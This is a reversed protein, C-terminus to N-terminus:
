YLIPCSNLMLEKNYDDVEKASNYLEVFNGYSIEGSNILLDDIESIQNRYSGPCGYRSLTIDRESYEKLAQSNNIYITSIIELKDLAKRVSKEYFEADEAFIAGLLMEEKVYPLEDGDIDLSSGDKKYFQVKGYTNLDNGDPTIKIASFDKARASEFYNYEDPEKSPNIFIFKVKYFNKDPINNLRIHERTEVNVFEPMLEFVETIYNRNDTEDVIVYRVENSTLYVFYDVKYPMSWYDTYLILKEGKILNPGFVIKNRIQRSSRQFNYSDSSLELLEGRGLTYNEVTGIKINTGSLINEFYGLMKINISEDSSEKAKNIISFFFFLLVAGVILVFIWNFQIGIAAKKRM